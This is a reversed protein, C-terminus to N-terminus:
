GAPCGAALHDSKTHRHTPFARLLRDSAHDRCPLPGSARGSQLRAGADPAPDDPRARHDPDRPPRGPAPARLGDSGGHDRGSSAMGPVQAPARPRRRPGPASMRLPRPPPRHAMRLVGPLDARRGTRDPTQPIRLSPLRTCPAPRPPVPLSWLRPDTRGRHCRWVGPVPARLRSRCTGRPTGHGFWAGDAPCPWPRPPRPM